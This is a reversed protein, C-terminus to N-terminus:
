GSSAILLSNLIRAATFGFASARPIESFARFGRLEVRGGRTLAAAIEDITATVILEADRHYLHPNAEALSAPPPRVEDDRDGRGDNKQHPTTTDVRLRADDL